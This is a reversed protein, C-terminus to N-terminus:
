VPRVEFRWAPEAMVLRHRPGARSLDGHEYAEDEEWLAVLAAGDESPLIRTAYRPPTRDRAAALAEDVDAHAALEHLTVFTPPVLQIEGADRRRLMDAPRVWEHDHIEGHDITVVGGEGVPARCVFFWTLFRKTSNMAMDEPPTWHSFPVMGAPEVLLDAEELAERAAARTAAELELGPPAPGEPGDPDDADPWDEPDIRGGPFVWMGGFAIKSNKRLMLVELATSGDPQRADRLPIVTAAPIGEGETRLFTM